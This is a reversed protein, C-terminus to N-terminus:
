INGDARPRDRRASLVTPGQQKNRAGAIPWQLQVVALRLHHFLILAAQQFSFLDFTFSSVLIAVFMSGLMYAQDRERPTAASRLAAAIGFIGGGTLVIMAAVGVIGGQM